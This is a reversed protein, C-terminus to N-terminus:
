PLVKIKFGAAKAEEYNKEINIAKIAKIWVKLPAPRWYYGLAKALANNDFSVLAQVTVTPSNAVEWVRNFDHRRHALIRLMVDVDALARHANDHLIGFHTALYQLKKSWDDPLELDTITDIWIKNPDMYEEYGLSKCWAEFMVRDFIRGNHACAAHCDKYWSILTRLALENPKGDEECMQQTIGHVGTASPEWVANPVHVIFGQEKLVTKTTTDYVAMGVEIVSHTGAIRGTTEFDVGLIKM